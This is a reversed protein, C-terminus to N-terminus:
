FIFRGSSHVSVCAIQLDYLRPSTLLSRRNWQVQRFWKWGASHEDEISDLLVRPDNSFRAGLACVLLLTSGFGEDHLHLGEAISSQFTPRHLVPLFPNSKTFYLDILTDMLDKEPFEQYQTDPEITELIWQLM